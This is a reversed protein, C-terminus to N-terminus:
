SPAPKHPNRHAFVWFKYGIFNFGLSFATGILAAFSPWLNQNLRGFPHAFTAVYWSSGVNVVSGLVSIFLFQAGEVTQSKSGVRQFTWSRNLLYSNLVACGFAIAKYFAYMAGTRGRNTTFILTNLVALDVVTNLAGVIGFRFVQRFLHRKSSPPPPAPDITSVGHDLSPDVRDKSM